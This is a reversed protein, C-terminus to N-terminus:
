KAVINIIKPLVVITKVINKGEINKKVNDLELAASLAQEKDVNADLTLTGKLKGNVQVAVTITDQALHKEEYEPWKVFDLREKHGLLEYLENSVHPCFPSLMVLFNEMM